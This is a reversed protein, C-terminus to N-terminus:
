GEREVRGLQHGLLTLGAFLGLINWYIFSGVSNFFWGRRFIDNIDFTVTSLLFAWLIMLMYPNKDIVSGFDILFKKM